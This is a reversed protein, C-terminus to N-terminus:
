QNYVYQNFNPALGTFLKFYIIVAVWKNAFTRVWRTLRHQKSDHRNVGQFLTHSRWQCILKSTETSNQVASWQCPEPKDYAKNIVCSICLEISMNSIHAIWPEKLILAIQCNKGFIILWSSDLIEWNCKIEFIWFILINGKQINKLKFNGQISSSSTLM